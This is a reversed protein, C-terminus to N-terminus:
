ESRWHPLRPAIKVTKAAKSKQPQWDQAEKQYFALNASRWPLRGSRKIKSIDPLPYPSPYVLRWKRDERLLLFAAQLGQSRLVIKATNFYGPYEPAPIQMNQMKAELFLYFFSGALAWGLRLDSLPVQRQTQSSLCYYFAEPDDSAVAKQAFDFTDRPTRLQSYQQRPIATGACGVMLPLLVLIIGPWRQRAAIIKSM